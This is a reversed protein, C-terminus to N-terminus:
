PFAACPFSCWGAPKQKSNPPQLPWARRTGASAVKKTPLGPLSETAAAAPSLSPSSLHNPARRFVGAQVRLDRSGEYPAQTGPFGTFHAHQVLPVSPLHHRVYGGKIRKYFHNLLVRFYGEQFFFFNETTTKVALYCFRSGGLQILSHQCIRHSSQRPCRHGAAGAASIWSRRPVRFGWPLAPM